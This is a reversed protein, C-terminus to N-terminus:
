NSPVPAPGEPSAVPQASPIVDGDARYAGAIHMGQSDINVRQLGAAEDDVGGAPEGVRLQVGDGRIRRHVLRQTAARTRRNDGGLSTMECRRQMFAFAHDDGVEVHREDDLALPHHVADPMIGAGLQKGQQM